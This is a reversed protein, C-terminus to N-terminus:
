GVLLGRVWAGPSAPAPPVGLASALRALPGRLWVLASCALFCLALGWRLASAAALDAAHQGAALVPVTVAVLVLGLVPGARDGEGWRLAALLVAALVGLLVWAGPGYAHVHEAPWALAPPGAPLLEAVVDPWIGVLALALEGVVLIGLVIRD